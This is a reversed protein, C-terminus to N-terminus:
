DQYNKENLVQVHVVLGLAEKNTIILLFVLPNLAAIQLNVSKRKAVLSVFITTFYTRGRNKTNPLVGRM